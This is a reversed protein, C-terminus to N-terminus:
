AGWSFHKSDTGDSLEGERAQSMEVGLRWWSSLPLLYVPSPAKTISVMLQYHPISKELREQRCHSLESNPSM